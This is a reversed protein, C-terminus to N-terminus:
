RARWPRAARYGGECRTHCHSGACFDLKTFAHIPRVCGLSPTNRLRWCFVAPSDFGACKETFLMPSSTEKSSVSLWQVEMADVFFCNLCAQQGRETCVVM